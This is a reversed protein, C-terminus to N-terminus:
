APSRAGARAQKRIKKLVAQYDKMLAPHIPGATYLETRTKGDPGTPIEVTMFGGPKVTQGYAEVPQTTEAAAQQMRMHSVAGPQLMFAFFNWALVLELGM